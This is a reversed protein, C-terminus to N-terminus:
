APIIADGEDNKIIHDVPTNNYTSHQNQIETDEDNAAEIRGTPARAESPTRVRDKRKIRDVPTNKCNDNQNQIQINTMTWM